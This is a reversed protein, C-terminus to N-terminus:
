LQEVAKVHHIDELRNQSNLHITKANKRRYCMYVCGGVLLIICVLFAAFISFFSADDWGNSDKEHGETDGKTVDDGIYTPSQDMYIIPAGLKSEVLKKKANTVRILTKAQNYPDGYSSNTFRLTARVSGAEFVSHVCGYSVDILSCVNKNFRKIWPPTVESMALNLVLEVKFRSVTLQPTPYAASPTSTPAKTPAKGEEWPSLELKCNQCKDTSFYWNITKNQSIPISPDTERFSQCSLCEGNFIFKRPVPPATKSLPLWEILWSRTYCTSYFIPDTPDDTTIFSPTTESAVRPRVGYCLSKRHNPAPTALQTPLVVPRHIHVRRMMLVRNQGRLYVRLYKGTQGKCDIKILSEWRHLSRDRFFSTEAIVRCIKENTKPCGGTETCPLDSLSVVAGVNPNSINYSGWPQPYQLYNRKMRPTPEGAYIKRFIDPDDREDFYQGTGYIALNRTQMCSAGPEYFWRNMCNSKYRRASGPYSAFSMFLVTPLEIIVAGVPQSASPFETQWWAQKRGSTPANLMQPLRSALRDLKIWFIDDCTTPRQLNDVYSTSHEGTQSLTFKGDKVEVVVSRTAMNGRSYRTNELACGFEISGRVREHLVTAAYAGNPVAIEWSNLKGDACFRENLRETRGVSRNTALAPVPRPQNTEIAMDQKCRWGYGRADSYVEGNDVKWGPELNISFPKRDWKPNKPQFSIKYSASFPNGSFSSPWGVTAPSEMLNRPFWFTHYSSSPRSNNTRACRYLKGATNGYVEKLDRNEHVWLFGLYYTPQEFAYQVINELTDEPRPHHCKHGRRVTLSRIFPAWNMGGRTVKGTLRMLPSELAINLTDPPWRINQNELDDTFNLPINMVNPLAVLDPNDLPVVNMAIEPVANRNHAVDTLDQFCQTLNATADRIPTILARPKVHQCHDTRSIMSTGTNKGYILGDPVRTAHANVDIADYYGKWFWHVIHHNGLSANKLPVEMCFIDEDFPMHAINEYRGGGVIWPYKASHYYTLVDNVLHQSKWKYIPFKSPYNPHDCYISDSKSVKGAFYNPDNCNSFTNHCSHLRPFKSALNMGSPVNNFYDRVNDKYDNEYILHQHAGNIAVFYHNKHHGSSFKVAMKQGPGLQAHTDSVKRPRFPNTTSAEFFARGPCRLWNHASVPTALSLLISLVAPAGLRNKRLIWLSMGGLMGGLVLMATQHIQNPLKPSNTHANDSIEEEKEPAEITMKSTHLIPARFLTPNVQRKAELSLTRASTAKCACFRSAQPNWSGCSPRGDSATVHSCLGANVANYYSKGKSTLGPSVSGCDAIYPVAAGLFGLVSEMRSPTAIKSGKLTSEDCHMSHSACAEHCSESLGGMVWSSSLATGETLRFPVHAGPFGGTPIQPGIIKHIGNPYYFFGDNAPGVKILAKFTIRGAGAPPAKYRFTMKLPKPDAHAHMICKKHPAWFM